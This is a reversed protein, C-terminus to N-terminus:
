KEISQQNIGNEVDTFGLSQLVSKAQEARAGSRCYLVVKTSKDISQLSENDQSIYGLPVNIANEVHGASFEFPERVDIYIAKGIM